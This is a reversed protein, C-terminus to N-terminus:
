KEPFLGTEKPMQGSKSTVRTDIEKVPKWRQNSFLFGDFTSYSPVPANFFRGLAPDNGGLRNYVIMWSKKRGKGPIRHQEYALHFPIQDTFEFIVRHQLNGSAAEFVPLGFVPLGSEDFTLAEIVRCARGQPAGVWGFLTFIDGSKSKGEIIKYYVAGPWKESGFAQDTTRVDGIDSLEVVKEIGSKSIKQYFGFYGFRAEAFPITWTILRFSQDAPTITKAFKLSDYPFTLSQPTSLLDTLVDRILNNAAIKVSDPLPSYIIRALSDIKRILLSDAVQAPASPAFAFLVIIIILKRM